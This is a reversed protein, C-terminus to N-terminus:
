KLCYSELVPVVVDKFENNFRISAGVKVAIGDSSLCTYAKKVSSFRGQAKLANVYEEIMAKVANSRYTNGNLARGTVDLFLSVESGYPYPTGDAQATLRGTNVRAMSWGPLQLSTTFRDRLAQDLQAQKARAEQADLDVLETPPPAVPKSAAEKAAKDRAAALDAGEKKIQAAEKAARDPDFPRKFVWQQDGGIAGLVGILEWGYRGLTDVQQQTSLAEQAVVGGLPGFIMLKSQGTQKASIDAASSFYTKGFSIVLYEWQGDTSVKTTAAPPSAQAAAHAGTLLLAAALFLRLPQKKM